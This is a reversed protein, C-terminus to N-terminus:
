TTSIYQRSWGWLYSMIKKITYTFTYYIRLKARRNSIGNQQVFHLQTPPPNYVLIKKYLYGQAPTTINNIQSFIINWNCTLLINPIIMSIRHTFHLCMCSMCVCERICVCVCVCVYVCICVYMHVCVYVCKICKIIFAEIISRTHRSQLSTFWNNIVFVVFIHSDGWIYNTYPM